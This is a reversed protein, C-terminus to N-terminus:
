KLSLKYVKHDREFAAQGNVIMLKMDSGISPDDVVKISKSDKKNSFAELKEEETIVICVGSALTIFNLGSLQVDDVKRVDYERFSEDFRFIFRDYKGKFEGIVMLVGGSFKADIIKIKDLEPVKIQYGAKSKPFLSIYVSGLMNQIVLGEYLNSSNELVNAVCHSATVLTSDVFESFEVELVKTGNRVYFRDGSQALDSANIGLAESKKNTYDFFTLQDQYCNLGIPNNKRPTFGIYTEGPITKGEYICRGNHIVRSMGNNCVLALTSGGSEAYQLVIWEKYDMLETIDIKGGSLIVPKVYGSLIVAPGGRPDPPALRKGDELVAVLWDKFNSPIVNIPHACGPLRAGKRFASINNRMRYEMRDKAPMSDTLTHNGGYPHVGIYLNFMLVAYSYWDTLESWGNHSTVTYDRVAPNLFTAPYGAVQYSDVDIFYVDNFTDPVLMNMANLDVVLAKASHINPLRERIKASITVIQDQTVKNRDRFNKTFLHGLTHKSKVEQMTYGINNLKEDLLVAQPKIVHDDKISSLIRFKADPIANAPDTYIKFASGQHVYVSAQGGAARFHNQTLTVTAGGKIQVKV